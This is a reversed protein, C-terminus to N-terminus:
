RLGEKWKENLKNIIEEQGELKEKKALETTAKGLMCYNRMMDPTRVKIEEIHKTITDIDGRAIPGTLASATGYKRINELSGNILPLLAMFGEERNIGIINFVDLGLDMLAVTYNAVICAAIHYLTKDRSDVVFYKNGCINLIKTIEIIRDKDGEISFVTNKLDLVAKDVTAFAQLPHLSFVNCKQKRASELISSNHAGSMHIVISNEKFGDNDAIEKCVSEISDDNTTIFTVDVKKTLEYVDKYSNSDTINAATEASAYTKSFYGGITFGHNLLYKGFSKGVKGAGIFGIKM